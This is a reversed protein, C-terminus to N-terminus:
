SPLPGDENTSALAKGAAALRPIWQRRVRHEAAIDKSAKERGYYDRAIQILADPGLRAEVTNSRAM